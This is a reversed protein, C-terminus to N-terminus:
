SRRNFKINVSISCNFRSFALSALSLALSSVKLAKILCCQKGASDLELGIGGISGSELEQQRQHGL